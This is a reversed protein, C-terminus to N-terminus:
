ARRGLLFLLVPAGLFATVIGAELEGPPVLVRGVIDAAVLVGAGVLAAYPLLWRWDPGAMLRALHPAILGLFAIPGALATSLGCLLVIAAFMAARLRGTRVGLSRTLEDGLALANLRGGWSLVLMALGLLAGLIAPLHPPPARNLAGVAWFRYGDFVASNSLTIIGSLARISASVAAATLVLRVGRRASPGSRSLFHVCLAALIAGGVAWLAAGGFGSAAGLAIGTVVALAAGANIGLLGPEALPNRALAQTLAGALGLALGVVAGTATRPLRLKWVIVATRSQDPHLLVAWVDALALPKAGIAIGILLLLALAATLLVLGGLRGPASVSM